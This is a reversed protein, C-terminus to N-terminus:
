NLDMKSENLDMKSENLDMNSENLDMKSENLDMNSENLDMNSENLDMGTRMRANVNLDSKPSLDSFASNSYWNQDAFIILIQWMM